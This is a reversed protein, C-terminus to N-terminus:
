QLINNPQPPWLLQQFEFPKNAIGPVERHVLIKKQELYRLNPGYKFKQKMPHQVITRNSHLDFSFRNHEKDLPPYNNQFPKLWIGRLQITHSKTALTRLSIWASTNALVLPAEFEKFLHSIQAIVPGGHFGTFSEERVSTLYVLEISISKM